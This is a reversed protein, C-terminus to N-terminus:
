GERVLRPKNNCYNDVWEPFHCGKFWKKMRYVFDKFDQKMSDPVRSGVEEGNEGKKLVEGKEAWAMGRELAVLVGFEESFEDGAVFNCLTCGVIVKDDIFPHPAAVFVGKKKGRTGYSIVEVNDDKRIKTAPNLFRLRGEEDRIKKKKRQIRFFQIKTNDLTKRIAEDEFYSQVLDEREVDCMM